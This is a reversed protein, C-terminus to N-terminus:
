APLCSCGFSRVVGGGLSHGIVLIDEPIRGEELLQRITQEVPDYYVDLSGEFAKEM